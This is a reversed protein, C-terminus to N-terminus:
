ETVYISTVLLAIHVTHNQLGAFMCVIEEKSLCHSATGIAVATDTLFLAASAPFLLAPQKEKSFTCMLMIFSWRFLRQILSAYNMVTKSIFSIHSLFCTHNVHFAWIQLFNQEVAVPVFINLIVKKGEKVFKVTKAM